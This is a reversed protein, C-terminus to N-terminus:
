WKELQYNGITVMMMVENRSSLSSDVVVSVAYMGRWGSETSDGETSNTGVDDDNLVGGM